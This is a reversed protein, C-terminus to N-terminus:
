ADGKRDLKRIEEDIQEDTLGRSRLAARATEELKAWKADLEERSTMHAEM